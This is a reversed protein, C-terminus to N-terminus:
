VGWHFNTLDFDEPKVDSYDKHQNTKQSSNSSNKEWTRVAAKWDKMQTRSGSPIWNRTEYYSFFHEADIGNGREKCYSEIEELTPKIFKQARNKEKSISSDNSLSIDKKITLDPITANQADNPMPSCEEAHEPMSTCARANGWRANAANRGHESRQRKSDEQFNIEEMVRHSSVTDGNVNVLNYQVLKDLLGSDGYFELEDLVEQRPSVGGHEFLVEAVIWFAGIGALGVDRSLKRLKIDNRADTDHRFWDM